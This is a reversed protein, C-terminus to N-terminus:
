VSVLPIHRRMFISAIGTNEAKHKRQEDSAIFCARRLHLAEHEIGCLCHFRKRFRVTYKSVLTFAIDRGYCCRHSVSGTANTVIPGAMHCGNYTFPVSVKNQHRSYCSEQISIELGFYSHKVSICSGLGFCLGYKIEKITDVLPTIQSRRIACPTWACIFTPGSFTWQAWRIKLTPM